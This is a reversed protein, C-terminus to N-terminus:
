TVHLTIRRRHYAFDRGYRPELLKLLLLYLVIGTLGYFFTNLFHGIGPRGEYVISGKEDKVINGTADKKKKKTLGVPATIFSDM